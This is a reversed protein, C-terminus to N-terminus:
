TTPIMDELFARDLANARIGTLDRMVPTYDAYTDRGPYRAALFRKVQQVEATQTEVISRAFSRM